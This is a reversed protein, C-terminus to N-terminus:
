KYVMAAGYVTYSFSGVCFDNWVYAASDGENKKEESHSCHSDIKRIYHQPAKTCNRISHHAGVM